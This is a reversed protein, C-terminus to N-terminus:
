SNKGHKFPRSTNYNHKAIIAEGLRLGRRECYEAARIILDAWEIEYNTFEPCNEDPRTIDRRSVELAESLESHALAIKEANFLQLIRNHLMSNEPAFKLIADEEDWFGKNKSNEHTEHCLIHFASM